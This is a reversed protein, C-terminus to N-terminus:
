VDISVFIEVNISSGKGEADYLCARKVGIDVLWQLLKIVKAIQYADESEVVIALYRLEGIDLAKYRKLIGMSILYSEIASALGSSFYWLGVAFHLLHWLLRVGLNGIQM